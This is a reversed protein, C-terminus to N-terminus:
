FVTCHCSFSSCFTDKGIVTNIANLEFPSCVLSIGNMYLKNTVAFTNTLFMAAHIIHVENKHLM